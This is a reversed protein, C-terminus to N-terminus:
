KIYMIERVGDKEVEIYEPEIKVIEYGGPLRTGPFYTKGDKTTIFNLPGKTIGAINKISFDSSSRSSKEENKPVETKEPEQASSGVVEAVPLTAADTVPIKQEIDAAGDIIERKEESSLSDYNRFDVNGGAFESTRRKVESLRDLDSLSFLGKYAIFGRGFYLDLDLSKEMLLATIVPEIEARHVFRIKLFEYSLLDKKVKQLIDAEAFVDIVYGFVEFHEDQVVPTVSLGYMKFTRKITDIVESLLKINIEIPKRCQPLGDIFARYDEPNKFVGTINYLNGRDRFFLKGKPSSKVYNELVTKENESIGFLFESINGWNQAAYLMVLVVLGAVTFLARKFSKKESQKEESNKKDADVSQETQKEPDEATEERDPSDQDGAAAEEATGSKDEAAPERSEKTLAEMESKSVLLWDNRYEAWDAHWVLFETGCGIRVGSQLEAPTSGLLAKTEGDGGYLTFDGNVSSVSPKCEDNVIIKFVAIDSVGAAFVIDCDGQNGILYEGPALKLAAGNSQGGIFRFEAYHQFNFQSEKNDEPDQQLDNNEM